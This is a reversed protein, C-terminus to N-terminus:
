ITLRPISETLTPPTLLTPHLPTSTATFPNVFTIHTNFRISKYPSTVTLFAFLITITKRLIVRVTVSTQNIMISKYLNVISDAWLITVVSIAHSALFIEFAWFEWQTVTDVHCWNWNESRTRTTLILITGITWEIVCM